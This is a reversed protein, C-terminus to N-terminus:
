ESYDSGDDQTGSVTGDPLIQILRNKILLQIKRATGTIHSLNASRENRELNSNKKRQQGVLAVSSNRVPRLNRATANVLMLLKPMATTESWLEQVPRVKSSKDSNEFYVTFDQQQEIVTRNGDITSTDSIMSVPEAAMAKSTVTTTSIPSDLNLESTRSSSNNSVNSAIIDMENKDVTTSEVITTKNNIRNNLKFRSTVDTPRKRSRRVSRVAARLENNSITTTVNLVSLFKTLYSPNASAVQHTPQIEHRLRQAATAISTMPPMVPVVPMASCTIPWVCIVLLLAGLGALARWHHRRSPMLKESLYGNFLWVPQHNHRDNFAEDLGHWQNWM